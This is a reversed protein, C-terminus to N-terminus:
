NCTALHQFKFSLFPSLNWTSNEAKKKKKKKKLVSQHLCLGIEKGGPALPCSM